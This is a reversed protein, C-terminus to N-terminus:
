KVTLSFSKGNFSLPSPTIETKGNAAGNSTMIRRYHTWEGLPRTHGSTDTLTASSFSNLERPRPSAVFTGGTPFTQLRM